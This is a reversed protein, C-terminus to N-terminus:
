SLTITTTTTKSHSAFWRTHKVYQPLKNRKERHEYDNMAIDIEAKFKKINESQTAKNPLNNWLHASRNTIFNHRTDCNTTERIYRM